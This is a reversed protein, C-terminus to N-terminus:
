RSCPYAAACALPGSRPFTRSSSVVTEMRGKPPRFRECGKEEARGSRALTPPPRHSRAVRRRLRPLQCSGRLLRHCDLRYARDHSDTGVGSVGVALTSQFPVDVNADHVVNTANDLTRLCQTRQRRRWDAVAPVAIWVTLRETPSAIRSPPTRVTGHRLIPISNALPCRGLDRDRADGVRSRGAFSSSWTLDAPTDAPSGSARGHESRASTARGGTLPVTVSLQRKVRRSRDTWPVGAPIEELGNVTSNESEAAQAHRSGSACPPERSSLDPDPRQGPQDGTPALDVFPQECSLGRTALHRYNCWAM